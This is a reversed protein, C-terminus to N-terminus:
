LRSILRWQRVPLRLSRVRVNRFGRREVIRRGQGCTIGGRGFGGKGITVDVDVQEQASSIGVPTAM